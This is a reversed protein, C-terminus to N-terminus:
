GIMERRCMDTRPGWVIQDHGWAGELLVLVTKLRLNHTMPVVEPLIHDGIVGLNVPGEPVKAAIVAILWGTIGTTGISIRLSINKMITHFYTKLQSYFPLALRMVMADEAVLLGTTHVVIPDNALPLACCILIGLKLLAEPVM